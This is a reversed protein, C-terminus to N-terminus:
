AGRGLRATARNETSPLCSATVSKEQSDVGTLLIWKLQSSRIHRIQYVALVIAALLVALFAVALAIGLYNPIGIEPSSM